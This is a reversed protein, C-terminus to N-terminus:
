RAIATLSERAQRILPSGPDLVREARNITDRLILSADDPRGAGDYARGLNVAVALTERDDSGLVDGMARHVQEYLQVAMAMRGAQHYAAAMAATARLTEPHDAGLSRQLDAVVKRYHSFADRARGAALYVEALLQRTGSADAPPLGRDLEHESLVARYRRIAEGLEGAARYAAVLEARIVACEPHGAGYARETDALAATLVSVADEYLGASVLVRGLMVRATLTRPHDAGLAGSSDAVIRKYSSVAESIRGAAVLAAALREAITMSDRHAPGCLENGVALLEAWYDVAPGVVMAEDLSRGAKLLVPHCGDSWLLKGAAQHLCMVSSRLWREAPSGGGEFEWAELVAAAAAQVAQEALDPSMALRVVRQLAPNMRVLSPDAQRDLQLLGGLELATLAAQVGAAPQARLRQTGAIYDRAAETEFLATPTGHGDLLAAVALCSQAVEAPVIRRALELSFTWTVGAAPPLGGSAAMARMRQYFQERYDSCTLWSSGIAGTAQALALPQCGLDEILAFAGRRQDSDQSLRSLLYSMAERPSFSGVELILVDPQGVLAEVS